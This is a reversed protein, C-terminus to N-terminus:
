RIQGLAGLPPPRRSSGPPCARRLSTRLSSPVSLPSLLPPSDLTSTLVQKHNSPTWQESKGLAQWVKRQKLESGQQKTEEVGGGYRDGRLEARVHTDFACVKARHKVVCPGKAGALLILRVHESAGPGVRTPLVDSLARVRRKGRGQM